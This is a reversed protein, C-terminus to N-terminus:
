GHPGYVTTAAAIALLAGTFLAFEATLSQKLRLRGEDSNREIRETLRLKNFAGFGLATSVVALKTMLLQGYSSSLLDVWNGGIVFALLLGAVFLIPVAVVAIQSFLRLRSSIVQTALNRRPWLTLPAVLWFGAIIVHVSVLLWLWVPMGESQAHGALGFGVSIAIAGLLALSRRRAIAAAALLAAGALIAFTQDRLGPWIWGFMSFDDFRATDGVIQLNMGFLGIAVSLPALAAGFWLWQRATAIGAAFHTGAGIGVLSGLYFLAKTTIILPASM